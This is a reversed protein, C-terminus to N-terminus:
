GLFVLTSPSARGPQHGAQHIPGLSHAWVALPHTQCQTRTAWRVGGHVGLQRAVSRDPHHFCELRDTGPWGVPGPREGSSMVQGGGPRIQVWWVQAQPTTPTHRRHPQELSGPHVATAPHGSRGVPAHGTPHPPTSLWVQTQSQLLM